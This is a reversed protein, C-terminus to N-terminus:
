TVSVQRFVCERVRLLLLLPLHIAMAAVAIVLSPTRMAYSSPPTPSGASTQKCPQHESPNWNEGM